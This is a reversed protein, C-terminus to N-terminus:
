VLMLFPTILLNYAFELNMEQATNTLYFGLIISVPISLISYPLGAFQLTSFIRKYTTEVQYIKRAVWLMLGTGLFASSITVIWNYSYEIPEKVTEEGYMGDWIGSIEGIM